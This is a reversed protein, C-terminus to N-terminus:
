LDLYTLASVCNGCKKLIRKKNIQPPHSLSAVISCLWWRWYLLSVRLIRFVSWPIAFYLETISISYISPQLLCLVWLELGMDVVPKQTIKCCDPWMVSGWAQTQLNLSCFWFKWIETLFKTICHKFQVRTWIVCNKLDIKFHTKSGWGQITALDLVRTYVEVHATLRLLSSLHSGKFRWFPSQSENM